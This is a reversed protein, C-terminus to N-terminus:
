KAKKRGRRTTKKPEEEVSPEEVKEELVPEEKVPEEKPELIKEVEKKDQVVLKLENPYTRSLKEATEQDATIQQGPGIFGEKLVFGRQGINVLIAM